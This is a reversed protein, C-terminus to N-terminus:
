REDLDSEFAVRKQIDGVEDLAHFFVVVVFLDDRFGASLLRLLRLSVASAPILAAPASAAAVTLVPAAIIASTGLSIFALTVALGAAFGSLGLNRGDFEATVEGAVLNIGVLLGVEGNGVREGM